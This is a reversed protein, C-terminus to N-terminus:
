VLTHLNGLVTHIVITCRGLHMGKHFGMKFSKRSILTPLRKKGIRAGIAMSTVNNGHLTYYTSPPAYVMCAQLAAARPLGRILLFPVSGVAVFVPDVMMHIFRFNLPAM